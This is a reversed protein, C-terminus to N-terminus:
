QTETNSQTKIANIPIVANLVNGPRTKLYHTYLHISYEKEEGCDCKQMIASVMKFAESIGVINGTVQVKDSHLKICESVNVVKTEKNHDSQDSQDSEEKGGSNNAITTDKYIVEHSDDVLQLINKADEKDVGKDKLLREIQNRFPTYEPKITVIVKNNTPKKLQIHLNKGNIYFKEVVDKLHPHTEFDITEIPDKSTM